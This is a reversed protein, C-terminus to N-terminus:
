AAAFFSSIFSCIQGGGSHWIVLGFDLGPFRNKTSSGGLSGLGHKNRQRWGPELWQRPIKGVIRAVVLDALYESNM